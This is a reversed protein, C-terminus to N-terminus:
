NQYVYASNRRVGTLVREPQEPHNGPCFKDEVIFRPSGIKLTNLASFNSLVSFFEEALHREPGRCASEDPGTRFDAAGYDRFNVQFNRLLPLLEYKPESCATFIKSDLEDAYDYAYSSVEWFIACSRFLLRSATANFARSKLRLNKLTAVDPSGKRGSSIVRFYDTSPVDRLDCISDILGEESYEFNSVIQYNDTVGVEHYLKPSLVDIM